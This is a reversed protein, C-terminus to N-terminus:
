GPAASINRDVGFVLVAKARWNRLFPLSRDSLCLLFYGALPLLIDSAYSYYLRHPTGRLYSGARLAHVAAVGVLIAVAVARRCTTLRADKRSILPVNV